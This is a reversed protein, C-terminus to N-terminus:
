RGLRTFRDPSFEALSEQTGGTVIDAVWRGTIPALAIGMMGHGTAYVANDTGAGAGVVPLSDPTCPRQGSWRARVEADFRPFYRRVEDFVDRMRREVSTRPTGLDLMGALRMRGDLPTLVFHSEPLYVPCTTEVADTLFDVHYGTAGVLPLRTGLQEALLRTGVGAALVVSRPRFEGAATLVREVRTGRRLLEVPGAGTVIEVELARCAEAMGVVFQRSDCHGEAETYVGGAVETDATVYRGLAAPAVRRGPLERRIADVRSLEATLTRESRYLGLIGDARFSTEVGSDVLEQHRVLSQRASAALVAGVHRAFGPRATAALFRSMWPVLRWEPRVRTPGTGTLLSTAGARVNSWTGLPTPHSPCVLGASGYSCGLGAEAQEELVVVRLGARALEYASAMGVAGAGVVVVDPSRTM